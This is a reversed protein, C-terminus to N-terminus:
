DFVDLPRLVRKKLHKLKKRIGAIKVRRGGRQLHPRRGPPPRNIKKTVPRKVAAPKKVVPRKVAPRKVAPRRVAPRKASRLRRRRNPFIRGRKNETFPETFRRKVNDFLVDKVAKKGHHILADKVSRKKGVMDLGAHLAAQLMKTGGKKMLDKAVDKFGSGRQPPNLMQGVLGLGPGM